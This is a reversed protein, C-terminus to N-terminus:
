NKAVVDYTRFTSANLEVFFIGPDGQHRGWIAMRLDDPREEDQHQKATMEFARGRNVELSELTAQDLPQAKHVLWATKNPFHMTGILTGSVEEDIWDFKDPPEAIFLSFIQAQGSGPAPIWRMPNKEPITFTDLEADPIVIQVARVVPHEPLAWRELVRTQIRRGNAAAETAYESTYGFQCQKDRHISLKLQSGITRMSIYIDGKKDGWLRWTCSRRGTVTGVAWRIADRTSLPTYQLTKKGIRFLTSM